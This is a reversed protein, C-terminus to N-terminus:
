HSTPSEACRGQHDIFYHTRNFTVAARIARRTVLADFDGTFPKDMVTQVDDPLADYPSATPPIAEDAAAATPPATEQQQGACAAAAFLMLALIGRYTAAQRWSVKM